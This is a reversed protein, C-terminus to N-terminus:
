SRRRPVKEVTTQTRQCGRALEVGVTTNATDRQVHRVRERLWWLGATALRGTEPSSEGGRPEVAGM